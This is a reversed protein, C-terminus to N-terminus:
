LRWALRALWLDYVEVVLGDRQPPVLGLVITATGDRVVHDLLLILKAAPEIRQDRVVRVAFCLDVLQLSAHWAQAFSLPILKPDDGDVLGSLRFRRRV